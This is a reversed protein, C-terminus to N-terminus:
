VHIRKALPDAETLMEETWGWREKDIDLRYNHGLASIVKATRGCYQQMEIIFSNYKFRLANNSSDIGLAKEELNSLTDIMVMDGPKYIM